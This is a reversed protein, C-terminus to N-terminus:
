ELFIGGESFGLKLFSVAVGVAAASNLVETVVGEAVLEEGIESVVDARAVENEREEVVRLGGIFEGEGYARERVVDAVGYAM